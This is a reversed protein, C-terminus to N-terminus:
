DGGSGGGGDSSGGGFDDSAGDKLHRLIGLVLFGAVALLLWLWSPNTKNNISLAILTSILAGIGAFIYWKYREFFSVQRTVSSFIAESGEVIGDTFNNRKFQPYIIEDIISKMIPDFRRPYGAGLEIRIKRGEKAVLLM